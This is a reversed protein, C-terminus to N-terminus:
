SLIYVYMIVYEGEGLLLSLGTQKFHWRHKYM